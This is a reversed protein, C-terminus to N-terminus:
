RESVSWTVWGAVRVKESWDLNTQENAGSIEGLVLFVPNCSELTIGHLHFGSVEPYLALVSPFSFSVGM